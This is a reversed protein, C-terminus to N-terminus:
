IIMASLPRVAVGPLLHSEPVGDGGGRGEGAGVARGRHERLGGVNRVAAIWSAARQLVDESVFSKDDEYDSPIGSDYQGMELQQAHM